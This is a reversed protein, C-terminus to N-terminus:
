LGLSKLKRITDAASTHLIGIGGAAEWPEIAEKKDDILIRNPGAWAAKDTTKRVLNIKPNGELFKPIWKRKQENAKFYPDGTASLIEPNHRAIYRWLEGNDLEELEFWHEGGRKQHQRIKKWMRNKISKAAANPDPVGALKDVGGQFNALVGDMDCFIQYKSPDIGDTVNQLDELLM